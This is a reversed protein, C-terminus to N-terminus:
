KKFGSHGQPEGMLLSYKLGKLKVTPHIVTSPPQHIHTHPGSSSKSCFLTIPLSPFWGQPTCQPGPVSAWAEQRRGLSAMSFVQLPPHPQLGMVSTPAVAVTKPTIVVNASVQSKKITSTYRQLRDLKQIDLVM